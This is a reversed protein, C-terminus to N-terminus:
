EEYNSDNGSKVKRVTEKNKYLNEDLIPSFLKVFSRLLGLTETEMEKPFTFDIIKGNKQLSFRFIMLVPSM